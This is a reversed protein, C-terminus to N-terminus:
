LIQGFGRPSLVSFAACAVCLVISLYLHRNQSRHGGATKACTGVIANRTAEIGSTQKRRMDPTHVLLRGCLIENITRIKIGRRGSARERAGDIVM